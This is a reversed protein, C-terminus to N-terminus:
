RLDLLCMDARDEETLMDLTQLEQAATMDVAHLGDLERSVLQQELRQGQKTPAGNIAPVIMPVEVAM